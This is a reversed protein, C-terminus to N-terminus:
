GFNSHFNGPSLDGANSHSGVSARGCPVRCFQSQHVLMLCTCINIFCFTVDMWNYTQLFPSLKMRCTLCESKISEMALCEEAMQVAANLDSSHFVDKMEVVMTSGTMNSKSSGNGGDGHEDVEDDQVYMLSHHPMTWNLGNLIGWFCPLTPPPPTHSSSKSSEIDM